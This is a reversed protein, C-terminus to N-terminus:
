NIPERENSFVFKFKGKFLSDNEGEIVDKGDRIVHIFIFKDKLSDLWFPLLLSTRPHKFGWPDIKKNPARFKIAHMMTRNIMKAVYQRGCHWQDFFSHSENYKLSHAHKIPYNYLGSPNRQWLVGKSTTTPFSHMYIFSDKSSKLVNEPGLLFVGFHTLAEYVGRTGSDGIGGVIVPGQGEGIKTLLEKLLGDAIEKSTPFQNLRDQQPDIAEYEEVSFYDQFSNARGIFILLVLLLMIVILSLTANKKLLAKLRNALM